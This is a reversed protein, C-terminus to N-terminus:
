RGRFATTDSARTQRDGPREVLQPDDLQRFGRGARDMTPSVGLAYRAATAGALGRGKLYRIAAEGREPM